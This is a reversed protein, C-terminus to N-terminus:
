LCGQLTLWQNDWRGLIPGCVCCPPCRCSLDKESIVAEKNASMVIQLHLAARPLSCANVPMSLVTCICGALQGAMYWYARIVTLVRRFLFRGSFRM